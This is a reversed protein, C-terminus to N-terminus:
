HTNFDNYRAGCVLAVYLELLGQRLPEGEEVYQVEMDRVRRKAFDFAAKFDTDHELQVRSGKTEYTARTRGTAERALRFAFPAANHRSSPRCHEQLRARMRNSRGVYLPTGRESLLYVGAGPISRPLTSISVPAMSLLRQCAPELTEIHKRFAENM